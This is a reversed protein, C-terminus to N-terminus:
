KGPLGFEQVWYTGFDGGTRVGVGLEVFRPDLINQRHGPSDMWDNMAQEPSRQGAALNEGIVLYDYDFQNARVSLTSRTVPNVHDFFDYHIMECAFQTAQDALTQNWSVPRLGIAAREANVLELIRSEWASAQTTDGCDPFEAALRAEFASIDADDTTSSDSDPTGTADDAPPRGVLPDSAISGLLTSDSQPCGASLGALLAITIALWHARPM